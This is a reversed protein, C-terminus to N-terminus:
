QFRGPRYDYHKSLKILFQEILLSNKLPINSTKIDTLVLTAPQGGCLLNELPRLRQVQYDFNSGHISQQLLLKERLLICNSTYRFPNTGTIQMVRVAFNGIIQLNSSLVKVQQYSQKLNFPLNM